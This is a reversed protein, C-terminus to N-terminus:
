SLHHLTEDSLTPVAINFVKLSNTIGHIVTALKCHRKLTIYGDSDLVDQLLIDGHHVSVPMVQANPPVGAHAHPYILISNGNGAKM